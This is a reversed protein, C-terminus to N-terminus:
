YVVLGNRGETLHLALGTGLIYTERHVSGRPCRDIWVGPAIAQFTLASSDYNFVTVNM